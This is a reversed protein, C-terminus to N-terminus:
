STPEKDASRPRNKASRHPELPAAPPWRGAVIAGGQRDLAQGHVNRLPQM